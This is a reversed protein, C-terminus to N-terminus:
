HAPLSADSLARTTMFAPFELAVMHKVATRVRPVRAVGRQGLPANNARLSQKRVSPCRSRAICTSPEVAGVGASLPPKRSRMLSEDGIEWNTRAIRTMKETTDHPIM